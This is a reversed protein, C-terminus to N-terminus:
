ATKRIKLIRKELFSGLISATYDVMPVIRAYNLRSPGIVGIAGVIKEDTIMYPSIIASCGTNQFLNNDAGLFIRVGQAELTMDLLRILDSKTDLVGFLTKIKDLDEIANLDDLLKSHGKVILREKGAVGGWVAIGQKVFRGALQDLEKNILKKEKELDNRIENFMKGQGIITLYNTAERLSSESWGEPIELVRNEVSGNETVVVVLVREPSLGIFEIQRLPSESKPALVLGACNTLGALGEIAKSLLDEIPSGSGAVMADIKLKDEETLDGVELLGDVFFKLGLPTPVRGSSTHPSYLLGTYELDAMVSRITSPSLNIKLRQSLSVSGIPDGTEVYAEVLSRFIEKNRKSLEQMM